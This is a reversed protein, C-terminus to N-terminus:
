KEQLVRMFDSAILEEQNRTLRLGAQDIFFHALEHALILEKEMSSNLNITVSKDQKDFEGHTVPFWAAYAIKIEAMAAIKFVDGTGFKKIIYNALKEGTLDIALEEM